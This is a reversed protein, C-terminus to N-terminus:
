TGRRVAYAAAEWRHGKSCVWVYKDNTTRYEKSLCKFNRKAAIQHLTKIGLRRGENGCKPCWHGRLLRTVNAQWVHGQSCQVRIHELSDRQLSNSLCVGDRNQIIRNVDEFSIRRTKLM